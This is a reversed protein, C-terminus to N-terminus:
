IILFHVISHDSELLFLIKDHKIATSMSPFTISYYVVTNCNPQGVTNYYWVTNIELKFSVGVEETETQVIYLRGSDSNPWHSSIDEPFM